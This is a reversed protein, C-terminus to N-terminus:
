EPQARIEGTQKIVVAYGDISDPLAARLSDTLTTVMIYVTPAGNQEGQGVGVVGPIAMLSDTNRKLVDAISPM